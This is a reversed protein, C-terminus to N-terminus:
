IRLKRLCHRITAQKCIWYLCGVVDELGFRHGEGGAHDSNNKTKNKTNVEICEANEPHRRSKPTPDPHDVLTLGPVISTKLRQVPALSSPPAM